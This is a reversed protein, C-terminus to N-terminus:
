PAIRYIVASPVKRPVRLRNARQTIRRARRCRKKSLCYHISNQTQRASDRRQRRSVAGQGDVVRSFASERARRGARDHSAWRAGDNATHAPSDNAMVIAVMMVIPMVVVVM